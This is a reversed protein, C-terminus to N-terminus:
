HYKFIIQDGIQLNASSSVSLTLGTVSWLSSNLLTATTGGVSLISVSDVVSGAPIPLLYSNLATKVIFNSISALSQSYDALISSVQTSNMAKALNIYDTGVDTGPLNDTALKTIVAVAPLNNAGFLSTAQSVIMNQFDSALHNVDGATYTTIASSPHAADSAVFVPSAPASCASGPNAANVVMSATDAVYRNSISCTSGGGLQSQVYQAVTSGDSAGWGQGDCSGSLANNCLTSCTANQGVSSVFQMALTKVGGDTASKCLGQKNQALYSAVTSYANSCFGQSSSCSTACTLGVSGSMTATDGGNVTCTSSPQLSAICNQLNTSGACIVAGTSSGSRLTAGNLASTCTLASGDSNAGAMAVITALNTAAGTCSASSGYTATFYNAITSTGCVASNPCALHIGDYSVYSKIGIRLQRVAFSHQLLKCLLELGPRQRCREGHQPWHHLV